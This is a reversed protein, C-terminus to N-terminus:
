KMMMAGPPLTLKQPKPKEEKKERKPKVLQGEAIVKDTAILLDGLSVGSVIEVLKGRSIGTVVWTDSVTDGKVLQVFDRNDKEKIYEKPIVITDESRKLEINARVFLGSTFSRDIEELRIWLKYAHTRVDQLQDIKVVEGPVMIAKHTIVTIEAKQGLKVKAKDKSNVLCQALFDERSIIGFLRSGTNVLSADQSMIEESILDSSTTQGTLHSALVVMGSIPAKIPVKERRRLVQDLKNEEQELSLRSKRLSIEVRKVNLESQRLENENLFGKEFLERDYELLKKKESLESEDLLISERTIDIQRKQRSIEDEIDRDDIKAILEDKEVHDGVKIPRLFMLRGEMLPKVIVSKRPVLEGTVSLISSLTGTTIEIVPVEVTGKMGQMKQIQEKLSINRNENQKSSDKLTVEEKCSVLLVLLVLITVLWFSYRTKM